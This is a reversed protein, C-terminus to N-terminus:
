LVLPSHVLVQSPCRMERNGGKSEGEGHFNEYGVVKGKEREEKERRHNRGQNVKKKRRM